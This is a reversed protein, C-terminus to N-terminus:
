GQLVPQECDSGYLEGDSGWSWVDFGREDGYLGAGCDGDRGVDWLQCSGDGGDRWADGDGHGAATGETVTFVPASFQVPGVADDDLITGQGTAKLLTAGVPLSLVLSVTENNEVLSDGIIPVDVSLPGTSGQPFTLTGATLTYDGPQVATGNATTYHVTVAQGAIKSLTVHFTAVNGVGTGELVAVDDVSLTPLADDNTITGQGQGDLITAGVAGSLNVFFTENAESLTDGNVTVSTSQSTTGPSFTLSGSLATYDGPAVATGDATDYSVAVTQGSAASLSVTFTANVTGSNGETVTANGISLSPLPDDNLITAQGLNDLITANSPASLNVFFTENAENLTDGIVPVNITRTTIGPSFTLTGLPAATYDGPAVATGDATAYHVTVTQASAASLSVTFTANVIGSNGENVTVDGISLGPLDDNLITGLGQGDQINANVANSLNVFFTESPETATDGSVTVSIPLTTQGPAFTLTGAIAAYDQGATASGDATQYDVTVTNASSSSLAVNFVFNKTGSNGESMAVDSITVNPPPPTGSTTFTWVPGTTTNVGDSVVAYWQYQTGPLLDPWSLSATSGSPVGSDTGIIAFPVNTVSMDYSLTFQSGSDTEFQGLTPSYTFVRIQNSAPAFEMIRMWGDGGNTRGQFDAQSVHLTRGNFVDTRHGEGNVHGSLFLFLNPNDKLSDYTAQGQPSYPAPNGTRALYHSVIIGYRDPHTKLVNDAWALVAPNPTASNDFEIMIVVFNMGSASFLEYYNDNNSGYHGGYYSRGGFRAQGFHQNFFITTGTPTDYPSSDHNGVAVGYPLGELLGTTAPDELKSMAADAVIWETPNGGNDGHEVVDGVHAVFKINRAAQNDVIWQTQAYYQDPTGGNLTASYFQTDPLVMLTFTPGPTGTIPRGYYAVTLMGGDPDSVDVDLAPSTSVGTAGSSPFNPAPANPPSSQAQLDVPVLALFGLALFGLALFALPSPRHPM